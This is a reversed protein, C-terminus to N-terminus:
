FRHQIDHIQTLRSLPIKPHQGNQKQTHGEKHTQKLWLLRVTNPKRNALYNQSKSRSKHIALINSCPHTQMTRKPIQQRPLQM